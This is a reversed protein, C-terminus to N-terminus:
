LTPCATSTGASSPNANVRDILKRLSELIVPDVVKAGTQAPSQGGLQEVMEQTVLYILTTTVMTATSVRTAQEGDAHLMGKPNIRCGAWELGTQNRCRDELFKAEACITRATETEKGDCGSGVDSQAANAFDEDTAGAVLRALERWALLDFTKSEIMRQHSPQSSSVKTDYLCVGQDPVVRVLIRDSGSDISSAGASDRKCSVSLFALGMLALYRMGTDEGLSAMFEIM